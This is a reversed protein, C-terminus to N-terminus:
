LGQQKFLNYLDEHQWYKVNDLNPNNAYVKRLVYGKREKKYGRDVWRLFTVADSEGEQVSNPQTPIPPTQEDNAKCKTLAKRLKKDADDCRHSLQVINMTTKKGDVNAYGSHFEDHTLKWYEVAEVLEKEVSKGLSDIAVCGDCCVKCSCAVGSTITKYKQEQTM